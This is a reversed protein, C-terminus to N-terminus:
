DMQVNLEIHTIDGKALGEATRIKKSLLLIFTNERTSPFISSDWHSSGIHAQVKLSKFGRQIHATFHRIHDSIERPLAVYFYDAKKGKMVAVEGDFAYALYDGSSHTM